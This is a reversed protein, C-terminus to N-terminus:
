VDLSIVSDIPTKLISYSVPRDIEPNWHVFLISKIISTNIFAYKYPSYINEIYYKIFHLYHNLILLM